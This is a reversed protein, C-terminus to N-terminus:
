TSLYSYPKGQKELKWEGVGGRSWGRSPINTEEDIKIISQPIGGPVFSIGELDYQCGQKRRLHVLSIDPDRLNFM